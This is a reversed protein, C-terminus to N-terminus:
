DGDNSSEEETTYEYVKRYLADVRKIDHLHAIFRYDDGDVAVHNVATIELLVDEVLALAGIESQWSECAAVCTHGDDGQCVLLYVYEKM